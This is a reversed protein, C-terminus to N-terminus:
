GADDAATIPGRLVSDGSHAPEGDAPEVSVDIVPFATADVPGEIPVTTTAADVEGLSVLEGNDLDLLWLEYFEGAPLEPLATLDLEVVTADGDRVVDGDVETAVRDDLPEMAFTAVQETAPQTTVWIGGVVLVVAAAAAAMWAIPSGGTRRARREDLSVVKAPGADPPGAPSAATPEADTQPTPTAAIDAADLAEDTDETDTVDRDTQDAFAAGAIGDWLSAVHAEDVRALDDLGAFAKAVLEDDSPHSDHSDTM